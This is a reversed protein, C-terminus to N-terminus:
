EHPPRGRWFASPKPRRRRLAFVVFGVVVLVTVAGGIRRGLIVNPDHEEDVVSFPAPTRVRVSPVIAEKWATAREVDGRHTMVHLAYVWSKGYFVHGLSSLSGSEGMSADVRWWANPAAGPPAVIPGHQTDLIKAGRVSQISLAAGHVVDEITNPRVPGSLGETKSLTLLLTVDGIVDYAVALLTTGATEFEKAPVVDVGACARPDKMGEPFTVCVRGQPAGVDMSFDDGDRISQAAAERAAAM